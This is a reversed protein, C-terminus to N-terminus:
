TRVQAEPRTANASNCREVAAHIADPTMMDTAVAAEIKGGDEGTFISVTNGDFAIHEVKGYGAPEGDSTEIHLGTLGLARDQDGEEGFSIIVYADPQDEGTLGSKDGLAFVFAGEVDEFSVHEARFRM